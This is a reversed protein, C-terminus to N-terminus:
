SCAGGMYDNTWVTSSFSKWQAGDENGKVVIDGNELTTKGFSSTDGSSTSGTYKMVSNGKKNRRLVLNGDCAPNTNPIDEWDNLISADVVKFLFKTQSIEEGSCRGDPPGACAPPNANPPITSCKDAEEMNNNRNFITGYSGTTWSAGDKYWYKGACNVYKGSEGGGATLKEFKGEQGGADWIGNLTDHDYNVETKEDTHVKQIQEQQKSAAKVRMSQISAAFFLVAIGGLACYLM